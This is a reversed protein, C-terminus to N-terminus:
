RLITGGPGGRIQGGLGDASLATLALNLNVAAEPIRALEHCRLLVPAGGVSGIRKQQEQWAERIGPGLTLAFLIEVAARDIERLEAWHKDAMMALVTLRIELDRRKDPSEFALTGEPTTFQKAWEAVCWAM